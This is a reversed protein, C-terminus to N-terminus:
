FRPFDGLLFFLCVVVYKAPKQLAEGPVTIVEKTGDLKVEYVNTEQTWTVVRGTSGAKDVHEPLLARLADKDSTLNVFESMGPQHHRYPAKASVLAPPRVSAVLCSVPVTISNENAQLKVDALGPEDMAVIEGKGGLCPLYVTDDWEVDEPFKKVEAKLKSINSTITVSDGMSLASGPPAFGPPAKKGQPDEVIEVARKPLSIQRCYEEIKLDLLDSEVGVVVATQGACSGIEEEDWELEAHFGVMSKLIQKNSNISVRMGTKFEKQCPGTSLPTSVKPPAPTSKVNGRQPALRLPSSSPAGSPLLVSVPVTVRTDPADTLSVDAMGDDIEAVLVQRGVVPLYTDDDWDLDDPYKAVERKIFSVDSSLTAQQGEKIAVLKIEEPARTQPSHTPSPHASSSPSASPPLSVSRCPVTVVMDMEKIRVTVTGTFGGEVETVVGARGAVPQYTAEDWELEDSM